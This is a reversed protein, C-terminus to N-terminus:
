RSFYCPNTLLKKCIEVDDQITSWDPLYPIEMFSTFHKMSLVWTLELTFMVSSDLYIGKSLGLRRLQLEALSFAMAPFLATLMPSQSQIEGVLLVLKVAADGGDRASYGYLMTEILNLLIVIINYQAWFERRLIGASRKFWAQTQQSTTIDPPTSDISESRSNVHEYRQPSGDMVLSDIGSEPYVIGHYVANHVIGVSRLKQGVFSTDMATIDAFFDDNQLDDMRKQVRRLLPVVTDIPSKGKLRSEFYKLFCLRITIGIDRSYRCLAFLKRGGEGYFNDYAPEMLLCQSVTLDMDSLKGSSIELNDMSIPKFAYAARLCQIADFLTPGESELSIDLRDSLGDEVIEVAADLYAQMEGWEGNGCAVSAMFVLAHLIDM